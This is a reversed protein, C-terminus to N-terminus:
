GVEDLFLTGGDARAFKGPRDAVAGTFAGRVHGFLESELLEAPIAACNVAVFPGDHRDSAQHIARAVLEKGTGSEGTLLVTAASPAARRVLELVQRMTDSSGILHSFEVRQGLQERLRRNEERLGLLACARDVTLLLADRAVPKTLFDHAGSKMAEVAQEITGYATIVIVLTEPSLARIQALVEQGSLGPMQLDTVVLPPRAERFVRVGELGDVATLVRYGAQELTYETVRRLSADDDIVLITPQGRRDPPKARDPM